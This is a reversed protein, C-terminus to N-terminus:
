KMGRRELERQLSRLQAEKRDLQKALERLEDGRRELQEAQADVGREHRNARAPGGPREGRGCKGGMSGCGGMPGRPPTMMPGRGPGPRMHMPAGRGPAMGMGMGHGGMPGPAAMHPADPKLVMLLVEAAEVSQKNKVLVESLAFAAARKLAPHPAQMAAQRLLKVFPEKKDSDVALEKIREIALLGATLPNSMMEVHQHLEAMPNEDRRPRDRRAEPRPEDDAWLAVSAVVALTLLVVAIKSNTKM